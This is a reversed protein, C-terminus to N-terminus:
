VRNEACYQCYRAKQGNSKEVWESCDGCIPQGCYECKSATFAKCRYCKKVKSASNISWYIPRLYFYFVFWAIVIVVILAFWNM